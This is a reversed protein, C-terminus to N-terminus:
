LPYFFEERVIKGGAVTYLAVEKMDTVEGTEKNKAKLEFIVAFRDDPHMMPDSISGDLMEFTSEWWEHKGRIAPIGQAERGMGNDMAEVSVADAAYLTELNGVATNTRCGDVLKDAIEQLTM